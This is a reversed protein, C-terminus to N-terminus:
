IARQNGSVSRLPNRKVKEIFNENCTENFKEFCKEVVRVASSSLFRL